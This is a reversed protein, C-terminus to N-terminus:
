SEDKTPSYPHFRRYVVKRCILVRRHEDSPIIKRRRVALEILRAMEIRDGDRDASRRGSGVPLRSGATLEALRGGGRATAAELRFRGRDTRWRSEARMEILWAGDRDTSYRPSRPPSSPRSSSTTSSGPVRPPSSRRPNASPRPQRSSARGACSVPGCSRFLTTHPLVS